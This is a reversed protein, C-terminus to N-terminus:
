TSSDRRIIYFEYMLALSAKNLCQQVHFLLWVTFYNYMSIIWYVYDIDDQKCSLEPRFDFIEVCKKTEFDYENPLRHLWLSIIYYYDRM